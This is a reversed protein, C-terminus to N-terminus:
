NCISACILLIGNNAWFHRELVNNKWSLLIYKCSYFIGWFDNKPVWFSNKNSKTNSILSLIIVILWMLVILITLYLLMTMILYSILGCTVGNDKMCNYENWCHNTFEHATINNRNLWATTAEESKVCKNNKTDVFIFNWGYEGFIICLIMNKNYKSTITIKNM